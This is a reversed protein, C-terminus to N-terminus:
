QLVEVDSGKGVNMRACCNPSTEHQAEQQVVQAPPLALREGFLKGGFNGRGSTQVIDAQFRGLRPAGLFNGPDFVLEFAAILRDSLFPLLGDLGGRLKAFGRRSRELFLRRTNGGPVFFLM